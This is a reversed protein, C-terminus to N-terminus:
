PIEDMHSRNRMPDQPIYNDPNRYDELFLREDEIPDPGMVPWLRRAYQGWHCVFGRPPTSLLTAVM